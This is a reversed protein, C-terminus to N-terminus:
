YNEFMHQLQHEIRNKSRKIHAKLNVVSKILMRKLIQIKKLFFFGLRSLTNICEKLRAM